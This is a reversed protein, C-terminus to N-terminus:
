VPSPLDPIDPVFSFPIVSQATFFVFLCCLTILINVITSFAISIWSMIYSHVCIYTYRASSINNKWLIQTKTAILSM